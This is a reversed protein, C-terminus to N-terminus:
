DCVTALLFDMNDAGDLWAHVKKGKAQVRGIAQRLARMKAWGIKPSNIRLIVGSVKADGAARDFRAIVQDLSEHLEGFLGPQQAAEPYTGKLEFQAYTLETSAPTEAPKEDASLQYPLTFLLALAALSCPVVSRRM